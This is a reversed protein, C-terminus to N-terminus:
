VSALLGVKEQVIFVLPSPVFGLKCAQTRQTGTGEALTRWLRAEM